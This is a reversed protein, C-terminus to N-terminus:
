ISPFRGRRGVHARRFRVSRSAPPRARAFSRPAEARTPCGAAPRVCGFQRGSRPLIRARHTGRLGRRARGLAQVPARYQGGPERFIPRIRTAVAPRLWRSGRTHTHTRTRAHTRAHTYLPGAGRPRRRVGVAGNGWGALGREAGGGAKQQVRACVCVCLLSPCLEQRRREAKAGEVERGRAGGAMCIARRKRATAARKAAADTAVGTGACPANWTSKRKWARAEM